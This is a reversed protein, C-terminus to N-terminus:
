LYVYFSILSINFNNWSVSYMERMTTLIISQWTPYTKAIWIIGQTPKEIETINSKGKTSKKPAMYNKLLIRFTHAADM